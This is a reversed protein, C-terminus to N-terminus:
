QQCMWGTEKRQKRKQTEWCAGAECLDPFRHVSLNTLRSSCRQCLTRCLSAAFPPSREPCCGEPRNRLCDKCGLHGCAQLVYGDEAECMCIVCESGGRGWHRPSPPPPHPHLLPIHPQQLDVHLLIAFQWFLVWVPLLTISLTPNQKQLKPLDWFCGLFNPGWGFVLIITSM